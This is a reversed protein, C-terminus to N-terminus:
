IKIGRFVVPYRPDCARMIVRVFKDLGRPTSICRWYFKIDSIEWGQKKCSSILWEIKKNLEEMEKAIDNDSANYLNPTQIACQWPQAEYVTGYDEYAAQDYAPNPSPTGHLDKEGLMRAVCACPLLGALLKIVNRRNM